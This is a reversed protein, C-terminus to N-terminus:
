GLAIILIFAIVAIALAIGAVVFPGRSAARPEYTESSQVFARFMETDGGPDVDDRAQDDRPEEHTAM